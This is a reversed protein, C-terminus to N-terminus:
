AYKGLRAVASDVYQTDVVTKMDVARAQHGYEVYWKQQAELDEFLVAGDPNLAPLGMKDYLARDKLPTRKILVEIVAERGQNKVFADNYDRVGRLYAVILRNAAEGKTQGFQPGYMVVAAQNNPYVEADDPLRAGVGQEQWQTRFPEIAIGADLAKNAFATGMDAYGLITLDVDKLSLGSRKMARDINISGTNGQGAVGVKRGKLDGYERVQGSDVLDKRVILSTYQFGSRNAGKDAVIKLPIDRAIANFLGASCAGTAVDLQGTGAAPVMDAGTQFPVIEFEIGEDKFYGREEALYFGADSTSGIM